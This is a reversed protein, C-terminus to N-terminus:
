VCGQPLQGAALLDVGMCGTSCSRGCGRQQRRWQVWGGAMLRGGCRGWPTSKSKGEKAKAMELAFEQEYAKGSM